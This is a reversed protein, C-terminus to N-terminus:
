NCGGVMKQYFDEAKKMVSEYEAKEMILKLNITRATEYLDDNNIATLIGSALEDPDIPNFLIGNLGPEIWERISEIDGVVPLCGSAMAELLTNPTGDHTSPSVFVRCTRYLDAMEPRSLRPMLNVSEGIDLTKVWKIASSVNEMSPCIFEVQPNEALVVPIAKFFIDNRVYARFGRPNIVRLHSINDMEQKVNQLEQIHNHKRIQVSPEAPYFHDLQVGGSGPLVICPKSKNYGLRYALRIDRKCDAHLGDMKKLVQKTYKMMIHTSKAHLTFDNGWISVLRPTDTETMSLVMGEFPIRMAHILDPKIRYIHDSLKQAASKLTFPGFWQRIYTRLAVASDGPIKHRNQHGQDGVGKRSFTNSFAIPLVSVSAFRHNFDGPYSSVLHVEFDRELFYDIWNLAIPSRGDVVFLLRM